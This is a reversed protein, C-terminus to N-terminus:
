RSILRSQRQSAAANAEKRSPPQRACRPPPIQKEDRLMRAACIGWTRQAATAGKQLPPQFCASRCECVADFHAMALKSSTRAEDAEDFRALFAWATAKAGKMSIRSRRLGSREGGEDFPASARLAAPPNAKERRVGRSSETTKAM